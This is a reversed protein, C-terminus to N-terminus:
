KCGFFAGHGESRSVCGSVNDLLVYIYVSELSQSYVSRLNPSVQGKLAAEYGAKQRQSFCHSQFWFCLLVIVLLTHEYVLGIFTPM